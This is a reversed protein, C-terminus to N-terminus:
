KRPAQVGQGAQAPKAATPPTAPITALYKGLVAGVALLETVDKSTFDPGVREGPRGKRSIEIVGTVKGEVVMPASVIKQIPAAKEEPSLDIAEFVSPHKYVLFNNVFEGRRERIDKAALSHVTSVPILGVKSLKIPFFFSIVKGDPSIRLIAMEDKRAKFGGAILTALRNLAEESPYGGAKRLEELQKAVALGLDIDSM